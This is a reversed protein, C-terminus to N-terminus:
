APGNFAEFFAAWGDGGVATYEFTTIHEPTGDGNSDISISTRNGGTDFTYTEIEEPTGDGNRDISIFTRNGDDDFTYKEIHRWENEGEGPGHAYYTKNGNNDYINKYTNDWVGDYNWDNAHYVRNGNSDDEAIYDITGDGNRDRKESTLNGGPDYEYTYTQNQNGDNNSDISQHLVNGSEDYTYTSKSIITSIGESNSNFDTFTLTTQNGYADYDYTYTEVLSGDTDNYYSETVEDGNANYTYVEESIGNKNSDYEEKTLNNNVDYTFTAISVRTSSTSLRSVRNGNEDYDYLHTVDPTGDDDHDQAELILQGYGNYNKISNWNGDGDDDRKQSINTGNSDYEYSKISNPTGDGNDDREDSTLNGNSDFVYTKIYHITGNSSATHKTNNGMEDYTYIEAWDWIQDGNYDRNYSVKNGNTDYEYTELSQLSNDISNRKERRIIQGSDNYSSSLVSDITGDANTDFSSTSEALLGSDIDLSKYLHQMVQTPSRIKRPKDFAGSANAKALIQKFQPTHILFVPEIEDDLIQPTFLAAVSTPIEIGNSPDNDKDLTQLLTSIAVVGYMLYSEESEFSMAQRLSAGSPPQLGMLDFPTIEAKAEVEGLPLAGLYFSIREGELYEFSGSGVATIGERSPTVFRVGGVPSDILQGQMVIPGSTTPNNSKSSGSSGGCGTLAIALSLCCAHLITQKFELTAMRIVM